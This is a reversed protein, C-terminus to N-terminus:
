SWSMLDWWKRAFPHSFISVTVSKIKKPKLIVAFPSQLWSILLHNGRPLFDIVFRSLTNFLLIMLKGVFTWRALAITKGTTMCPHQISLQVIFFASCQLVSTQITTNSFVRSLGKPLLSIWGTWRLPFWDQINMPFVSASAPVGISQGGSAFFQSM